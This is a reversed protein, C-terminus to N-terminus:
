EKRKKILKKNLKQPVICKVCKKVLCTEISSRVSVTCTHTYTQIHTNRTEMDHTSVLPACVTCAKALVQPPTIIHERGGHHGGVGRM